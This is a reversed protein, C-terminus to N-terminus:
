RGNWGISKLTEYKLLSSSHLSVSSNRRHSHPRCTVWVSHLGALLAQSNQFIRRCSLADAYQGSLVPAIQDNRTLSGAPSSFFSGKEAVLPLWDVGLNSDREWRACQVTASVPLRESAQIPLKTNALPPRPKGCVKRKQLLQCFTQSRSVLYSRWKELM